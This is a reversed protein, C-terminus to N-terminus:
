TLNLHPVARCNYRSHNQHRQWLAPSMHTHGSLRLFGGPPPTGTRHFALLFNMQGALLATSTTLFSLPETHLRQHCPM